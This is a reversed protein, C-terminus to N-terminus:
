TSLKMDVTLYTKKRNDWKLLKLNGNNRAMIAACLAIQAPDGVCVLYDEERSKALTKEAIEVFRSADGYIQSGPPFVDIARGYALADTFDIHNPSQPLYVNAM